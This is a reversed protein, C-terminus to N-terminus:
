KRREVVVDTRILHSNIGLKDLTGLVSGEVLPNWGDEFITVKKVDKREEADAMWFMRRGHDPTTVPTKVKKALYGGHRVIRNIGPSSTTGDPWTIEGFGVNPYGGWHDAGHRERFRLETGDAFYFTYLVDVPDPTFEGSEPVDQWPAPPRPGHPLPRPVPPPLCPVPPLPRSAPDAPPRGIRDAVEDILEPPISACGSLLFFAAFIMMNKM